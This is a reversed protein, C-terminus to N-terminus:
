NSNFYLNLATQTKIHELAETQSLLDTDIILDPSGNAPAEFTSDSGTFLKIEGKKAKAYLGKVDRQACTSYTAQTHIFTLDDPGIIERALARFERKPTIFSCLVIIGNQLLLKATEAARRINESRALDSFGLDANLGSRLNDGDLVAVIRGAETLEKELALALTSKGSGSLGYFWFVHAQQQLLIEKTARPVLRHPTLM